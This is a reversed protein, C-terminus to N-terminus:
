VTLESMKYQHLVNDIIFKKNADLNIKMTEKGTMANIVNLIIKSDGILSEEYKELNNPDNPDHPDNPNNPNNQDKQPGSAPQELVDRMKIKFGDQTYGDDTDFNINKIFYGSHKDVYTDGDDSIIGQKDVIEELVSLYDKGSLFSNALKSLFIPILKTNTVNCYLWFNDETSFPERTFLLVFKQISNQRQVFNELSLITTLLKEYPSSIFIKSIDLMDALKRKFTDYM